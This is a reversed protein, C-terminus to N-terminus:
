EIKKLFLNQDVGEDWQNRVYSASKTEKYAEREHGYPVSNLNKDFIM